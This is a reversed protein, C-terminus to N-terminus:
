LRLEAWVVTCGDEHIAGWDSAVEHVIGLGRGSVADSDPARLTVEGSGDSDRVEVHVAMPDVEVTLLYPARGHMIANTALESVVLVVDAGLRVPVDPSLQNAAWMRLQGIGAPAAGFEISPM